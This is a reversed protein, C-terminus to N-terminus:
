CDYTGKNVPLEYILKEFSGNLLCSKIIYQQELIARM